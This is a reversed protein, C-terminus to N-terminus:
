VTTIEKEMNSWSRQGDLYLKYKDSETMDEYSLEAIDHTYSYYNYSPLYDYVEDFEFDEALTEFENKTEKEWADYRQKIAEFEAEASVYPNVEESIYDYPATDPETNELDETIAGQIRTQAFYAEAAAREEAIRQKELEAEIDELVSPGEQILENRLQVAYEHAYNAQKAYEAALPKCNNILAQASGIGFKSGSFLKSEFETVVGQSQSGLKDAVFETMYDLYDLGTWFGDAVIGAFQTSAAPAFFTTRVLNFGDLLTGKLAYTTMQTKINLLKDYYVSGARMYAEISAYKQAFIEGQPTKLYQPNSLIQQAETGYDIAMLNGIEQKYYYKYDDEASGYYQHLSALQNKEIALAYAEAIASMGNTAKNFSTMADSGDTGFQRIKNKKEWFVGIIKEKDASSMAIYADRNLAPNTTLSDFERGNVTYIIHNNWGKVVKKLKVEKIVLDDEDYAYVNAPILATLLSLCLFMCIFRKM